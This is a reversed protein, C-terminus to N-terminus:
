TTAAEPILVNMWFSSYTHIAERSDLVALPNGEILKALEPQAMVTLAIAATVLAPDVNRVRGKEITHTLYNTIAAFLPTLNERCIAEGRGRLELLAV